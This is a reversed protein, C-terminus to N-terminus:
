LKDGAVNVAAICAIWLSCVKTDAGDDVAPFPIKLVSLVCTQAM